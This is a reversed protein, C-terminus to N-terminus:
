NDAWSPPTRTAALFKTETSATRGNRRMRTLANGLLSQAAEELRSAAPNARSRDVFVRLEGRRVSLLVHGPADAVSWVLTPEGPHEYVGVWRLDGFWRGALTGLLDESRVGSPLRLSAVVRPPEVDGLSRPTIPVDGDLRLSYGDTDHIVRGERELRRLARSLSEPHAGLTRRLGNFALRGPHESLLEMVRDDLRPD